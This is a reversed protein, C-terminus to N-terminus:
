VQPEIKGALLVRWLESYALNLWLESLTRVPIRIDAALVYVLVDHSAFICYQDSFCCEGSTSVVSFLQLIM